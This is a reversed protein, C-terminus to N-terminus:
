IQRYLPIVTFMFDRSNSTRGEYCVWYDHTAHGGHLGVITLTSSSWITARHCATPCAENLWPRTLGSNWRRLLVVTQRSIPPCFTQSHSAQPTATTESTILELVENM